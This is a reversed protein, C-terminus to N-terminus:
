WRLLLGIQGCDDLSGTDVFSVEGGTLLVQEIVDDVMDETDILPDAEDGPSLGDVWTWPLALGEEVILERGRGEAVAAVVAPLTTVAQGTGAADRLRSCSQARRDTRWADLVPRVLAALQDPRDGGHDGHVVGALDDGLDVVHLLTAVRREEGVVVLPRPEVSHVVALAAGVAREVVRRDEERVSEHRPRDAHPTDQETPREVHVPFGHRGVEALHDDDSEFLRAGEAELVVVRCPVQRASGELLQRTAFTTDVIVEEVVAFPLRVILHDDPSVFLALGRAAGVPAIDVQAAELQMRVKGATEADSWTATARVAEDVLARLRMANEPHAAGPQEVPVLVSVAPSATRRALEIIHHRNM